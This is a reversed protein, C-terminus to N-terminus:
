ERAALPPTPPPGELHRRATRRFGLVVLESIGIGGCVLGGRRIVPPAAGRGIAAAGIREVAPMVDLAAHGHDELRHAQLRMAPEISPGRPEGPPAQPPAGLAQRAGLTSRAPGAGNRSPSIHRTIPRDEHLPPMCYSRSPLSSASHAPLCFSRTLFACALSLSSPMETCAM